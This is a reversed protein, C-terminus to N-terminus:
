CRRRDECIWLGVLSKYQISIRAVLTDASYEGLFYVSLFADYGIPALAQGFRFPVITDGSFLQEGNHFGYLMEM